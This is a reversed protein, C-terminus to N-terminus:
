YEEPHTMQEFKIKVLSPAQPLFIEDSVFPYKLHSFEFKRMLEMLHIPSEFRAIEFALRTNEEQLNKVERDLTPIVLRLETLENQKEIYGFLTLGAAFICVFIRLALLFQEKKEKAPKSNSNKM